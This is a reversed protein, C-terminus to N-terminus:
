AAKLTSRSIRLKLLWSLSAFLVIVGLVPFVWRLIMFLSIPLFSVAVFGVVWTSRSAVRIIWSGILIVLIGGLGVGVRLLTEILSHSVYQASFDYEKTAAIFELEFQDFENNLSAEDFEFGAVSAFGTAQAHSMPGAQDRKGDLASVGDIFETARGGSGNQALEGGFGGMATGGGGMGGAPAQGRRNMGAIGGGVGGAMYGGLDMGGDAMQNELDTAQPKGFSSRTRDVPNRSDLSQKQQMQYQRLQQQMRQQSSENRNLRQQQEGRDQSQDGQGSSPKSAPTKFNQTNGKYLRKASGDEEKRSERILGNGEFWGKKFQSEAAAKEDETTANEVPLDFNNGLQNVANNTIDNTQELFRQNLQKRNDFLQEVEGMDGEPQQVLEDVQKNLEQIQQGNRSEVETQTAYNNVDTESNLSNFLRIKEYPNSSQNARRLKEGIEQSIVLSQKSKLVSGIKEDTRAILEGAGDFGFWRRDKPLYLKVFTSGEAVINKTGIVPLTELKGYQELQGGVNGAYHIQVLYSLEGDETKVLPVKLDRDSVGKIPKVPDGAVSIAWLQAGDPLTAELFQETQNDVLLELKARYTGAFDVAVYTTALRIKAADRNLVKNSRVSYLIDVATPDQATVVFAESIRDGLVATVDRWQVSQRNLREFGALQNGDQDLDKVSIQDGSSELSVFQGLVGVNEGLIVPIPPRTNEGSQRDMQILVRYENLVEDELLLRVTVYDSDEAEDEWIVRQVYQASIISKGKMYKPLRFSFNREGANSVTYELLITEEVARDTVHVNTFTRCNVSVDRPILQFKAAYNPGRFKLATRALPRQNSRLWGFMSAMAVSEGQQVDLLEVDFSPDSLLVTEGYQSQVGLVALYPVTTTMNELKRELKGELIVNFGGQIGQGLLATVLKAKGIIADYEDEAWEVLGPASLQRIVLDQPVVLQVQHVPRRSDSVRIMSELTIEQPSVRVLSKLNALSRSAIETASLTLAYANGSFQYALLSQIGLPNERTIAQAEPQNNGNVRHLGPFENVDLRSLGKAADIVVNLMPSRRILITGKQSVADPVSVVPINFQDSKGTPLARYRVLSVRLQATNQAAELMEISIDQNGAEDNVVEWSRINAGKVAEVKMGTPVRLRFLDRTSNRFSLNVFWDAYVGDEQVDIILESQSTLDRDTLSEQIVPRWRFDFLGNIGLSSVVEENAQSTRYESRGLHNNWRLETNAELVILNMMGSVGIPLQGSAIRWGGQRAIPMRLGLRLEHQGKGSILLQHSAAAPVPAPQVDQQQEAQQQVQAQPAVNPALPGQPVGVKMQAPKEDLTAYEIVLDGLPLGIILEQDTFVDIGIVGEILLSNDEYLSTSYEVGNFAYKVPLYEHELTLGPYARKFLETYRKLPILLQQDDSRHVPLASPDYPVVVADKPVDVPIVGAIQQAQISNQLGTLLSLLVLGTRVGKGGSFKILSSFVAKCCWSMGPRLMHFVIYGVMLVIVSAFMMEAVGRYAIFQPLASVVIALLLVLVLFRRKVKADKRVVLVGLALIVLAVVWGLVIGFSKRVVQGEVAAVGGLNGFEYLLYDSSLKYTGNSHIRSVLNIDLSNRGELAWVLEAQRGIVGQSEGALESDVQIEEQVKEMDDAFVEPQQQQPANAPSDFVEDTPSTAKAKEALDLDSTENNAFPGPPATPEPISESKPEASNIPPAIAGTSAEFEALEETGDMPMAYDADATGPYASAIQSDSMSSTPASEGWLQLGGTALFLGGGLYAAQPTVRVPTNTQKMVDANKLSLRYSAPVMMQWKVRAPQVLPATNSDQNRGHEFLQPANLSFEGSSGQSEEYILRLERLNGVDEGATSLDVLFGDNRPTKQPRVTVVDDVVVSWLRADGPLVVRVYDAKTLLSYRAVTQYVGRSAVYTLLEARNVLVAPIARLDPYEIGVNISPSEGTYRFAAVRHKGVVYGNVALEGADVPKFGPEDVTLELEPSAEISFVGSQYGAGMVEPFAPTLQAEDNEVQNNYQVGLTVNSFAPTSLRITWKRLPGDDESSYQKVETGALGNITINEPTSDAPLALVVEEVQSRQINIAIEHYSKHVGQQVDFFSALRSAYLAPVKRVMTSVAFDTSDYQYALAVPSSLSVRTRDSASLPFAGKVMDARIEFVDQYQEIARIGIVGTSRYTDEVVFAPTELTYEDWNELWGDPVQDSILTVRHLQGFARRGPFKVHLRRVGQEDITEHYKLANQNEDVIATVNWGEPAQLDFGFLDDLAPYLYFDVAAQHRDRLLTLVTNTQVNLQSEPQLVKAAVSYDEQPVYYTALIQLPPAGPEVIFISQPLANELVANNLPIAGAAQLSGVALRREALIGIVGTSAEVDRAKIMPFSWEEWSPSTEIATIKVTVASTQPSRFEVKLLNAGDVQSVSWRALDPTDVNTVEFGDPIEYIFEAAAGQVIEMSYTAHIRELSENLEDVIVSRAITQRETQLRKNNLSMTVSLPGPRALLEFSTENAQDDISRSVVSAGSKIEINGPVVMGISENPAHPLEFAFSQEAASHRVPTALEIIVTAKGKRGVLLNVQQPSARVVPAAEGDIQASLVSVGVFRLPLLQLGEALSEVELTARITAFDEHLRVDYRAKCLVTNQPPTDGPKIDAKKLLDEYESRPLYIREIPGALVSKLDKFPVYIERSKEQAELSTGLLSCVLGVMGLFQLSKFRNSSDM